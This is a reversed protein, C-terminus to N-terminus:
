GTLRLEYENCKMHWQLLSKKNKVFALENSQWCFFFVFVDIHSITWINFSMFKNPRKSRSILQKGLVTKCKMKHVTDTNVRNCHLGTTSIRFCEGKATQM